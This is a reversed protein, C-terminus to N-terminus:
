RMMSSSPPPLRDKGEMDPPAPAKPEPEDSRLCELQGERWEPLRYEWGEVKKAFATWDPIWPDGPVPKATPASAGPTPEVKLRFWTADGERRGLMTLVAGKLTFVVTRDDTPQFDPKAARVDDFEFRSPWEPLVGRAASAQEPTWATPGEASALFQESPRGKTEGGRPPRPTIKLGMWDAGLFESGPLSLLDRRMWRQFDVDGNVGGRCRWAQNEDMRRLYTSRPALREQGLIVELPKSEPGESLRILRARGEPDPWVLNLEGFREPKRTLAQDRQLQSLGVVLGRVLELDAPYGDRNAIKWSDDAARELRVVRDGQLLEISQVRNAQNALEPFMLGQTVRVSTAIRDAIAWGALLVLLATVIALLPLFRSM